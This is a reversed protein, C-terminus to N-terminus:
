DLEEITPGNTSNSSESSPNGDQYLKTM